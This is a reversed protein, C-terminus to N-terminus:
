SMGECWLRLDFCIVLVWKSSLGWRGPEARCCPWSAHSPVRVGASDSAGQPARGLPHVVGEVPRAAYHEARCPLSERGDLLAHGDGAPRPWPYASRDLFCSAASRTKFRTTALRTFLVLKAAIISKPCGANLPPLPTVRLRRTAVIREYCCLLDALGPCWRTAHRTPCLLRRSPLRAAQPAVRQM